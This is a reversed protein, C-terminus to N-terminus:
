SGLIIAWAAKPLMLPLTDSHSSDFYLYIDRPRKAPKTKIISGADEASQGEEM